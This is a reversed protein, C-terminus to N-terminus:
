NCLYIHIRCIRPTLPTPPPSSGTHIYIICFSKRRMNPMGAALSIIAIHQKRRRRGSIPVHVCTNNIHHTAFRSEGAPKTKKKKEKEEGGGGKSPAPTVRPRTQRIQPSYTHIYTNSSELSEWKGASDSGQSGDMRQMRGSCGDPAQCDEM